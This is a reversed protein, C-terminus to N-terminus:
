LDAADEQEMVPLVTHGNLYPIGSPLSAKIMGSKKEGGLIAAIAHELDAERTKERLQQATGRFYINGELLFVIEDALEEVLSIIHTTVIITKGKQREQRIFDKLRILAIPDLGATPEDLILYPSDYMFALTLNVKQKTGGSLYSLRKGLHPALDFLEILKEEQSNNGRIDKIMSILERVTLNEPFRAIQPLYDIRARYAFHDKVLEGDVRIEGQDPIVMGLISKILTTKGSGNPGLVATITGPRNFALDIGKLVELKGFQKHLNKIEIM